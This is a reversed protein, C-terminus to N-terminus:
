AKAPNGPSDPTFGTPDYDRPGKRGRLVTLGSLGLALFPLTGALADYQESVLAAITGFIGTAVVMVLAIRWAVTIGRRMGYRFRVDAKRPTLAAHIAALVAIFEDTKHEIDNMGIVNASDIDISPQGRAKLHVVFRGHDDPSTAPEIHVEDISSWPMTREASDRLHVTVGKADLVITREVSLASPRFTYFITAVGSGFV